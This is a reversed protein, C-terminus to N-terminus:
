FGNESQPVIGGEFLFDDDKTITLYKEPIECDDSKTIPGPGRQQQKFHHILKKMPPILPMKIAYRAPPLLMKRNFAYLQLVTKCM